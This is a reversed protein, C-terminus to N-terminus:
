VSLSPFRATVKVPFSSINPTHVEGGFSSLYYNSLGGPSHVFCNTESCITLHAKNTCHTQFAGPGSMSSNPTTCRTQDYYISLITSCTFATIGVAWCGAKQFCALPTEIQLDPISSSLFSLTFRDMDPSLQMHYTTLFNNCLLPRFM